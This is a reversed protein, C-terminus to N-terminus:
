SDMRILIFFIVESYVIGKALNHCVKFFFVALGVSVRM